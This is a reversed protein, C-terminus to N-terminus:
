LSIIEGKLKINEYNTQLIKENFMTVNHSTAQTLAASATAITVPDEDTKESLVEDEHVEKMTGDNHKM